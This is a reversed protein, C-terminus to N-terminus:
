TSRILIEERVDTTLWVGADNELMRLAMCARGGARVRNLYLADCVAGWAERTMAQEGGGENRYAYMCCDYVRDARRRWEAKEMELPHPVCGSVIPLVFDRITWIGFNKHITIAYMITYIAQYRIYEDYGGFAVHRLVTKAADVLSATPKATPPWVTWLADVAAELEVTPPSM